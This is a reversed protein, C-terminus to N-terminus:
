GFQRRSLRAREAEILGAYARRDERPLAMIETHSWGYRSAILHTERILFPRESTLRRTLYNALDFRIEAQTECQPCTAALDFTLVPAATELFGGITEADAIGEVLVAKTLTEPGASLDGPRPARLRAGNSITWVGDADPGEPREADQGAIIRPLDLMFEYTEACSKCVARCEAQPGFLMEYVGALGRDIQSVNLADLDVGEALRELLAAAPGAGYGTLSLEDEGTLPRLLLTLAAHGPPNLDVTRM